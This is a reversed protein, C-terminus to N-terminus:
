SQFCRLNWYPSWPSIEGYESKLIEAFFRGFKLCFRENSLYNRANQVCKLIISMIKTWRHRKSQLYPWTQTNHCQARVWAPDSLPKAWLPFMNMYNVRFNKNSSEPSSKRYGNCCSVAQLGVSSGNQAKRDGPACPGTWGGGGGKFSNLQKIRSNQDEGENRAKLVKM